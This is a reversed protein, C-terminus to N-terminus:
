GQSVGIMGERVANQIEEPLKLLSFTRRLSTISKGTIKQITTATGVVEKKVREPEMEQLIMTNIGGRGPRDPLM